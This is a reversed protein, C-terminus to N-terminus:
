VSQNIGKLAANIHHELGNYFYCEKNIFRILATKVRQKTAKESLTSVCSAILYDDLSRINWKQEYVTVKNVASNSSYKSVNKDLLQLGGYKNKVCYRENDSIIVVYESHTYEVKKTPKSIKIECYNLIVGTEKHFKDKM